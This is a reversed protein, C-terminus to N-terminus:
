ELHPRLYNIGDETSADPNMLQFHLQLQMARGMLPGRVHPLARMLMKGDLLPPMRWVGELGMAIVAGHVSDHKALAANVEEAPM